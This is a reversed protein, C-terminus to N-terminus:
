DEKKEKKVLEANIAALTGLLIQLDEKTPEAKYYLRRLKRMVKTANGKYFSIKNLLNNLTDFYFQIQESTAVPSAHKKGINSVRPESVLASRISFAVVMVASALNLSTHRDDVPIHVLAQCIDLEENTLGSRERGFVLAIDQEGQIDLIQEALEQPSYEPWTISRLRATTGYVHSCNEVAKALTPFLEASDLIDDAGAARATAQMSPYELPQVLVLKSLGMNAMARATAGINGPHSTNVLVIKIRDLLQMRLKSVIM